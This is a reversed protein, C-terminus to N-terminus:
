NPFFVLQAMPCLISVALSRWERKSVQCRFLSSWKYLHALCCFRNTGRLSKLGSFRMQTLLQQFQAQTMAFKGKKNTQKKGNIEIPFHM